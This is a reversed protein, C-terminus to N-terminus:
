RYGFLMSYIILIIIFIGIGLFFFGFLYVFRIFRPSIEKFVVNKKLQGDKKQEEYDRLRDARYEDLSALGTFIVLDM